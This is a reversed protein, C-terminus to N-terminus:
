KLSVFWMEMEGKGKATIKGRSEFVFDGHDKKDRDSKQLV